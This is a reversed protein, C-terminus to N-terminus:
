AAIEEEAAGAEFEALLKAEYKAMSRATRKWMKNKRDWEEGPLERRIRVKPCRRRPGKVPADHQLRRSQLLEEVLLKAGDKAEVKEATVLADLSGHGNSALNALITAFPGTTPNVFTNFTTFIPM